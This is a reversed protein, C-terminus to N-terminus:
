PRFLLLDIFLLSALRARIEGPFGVRVKEFMEQTDHFGIYNSQVWNRAMERAKESAKPVNMKDLGQIAIIQLPPWANPSDWQEGTKELSAPLGGSSLILRNFYTEVNRM